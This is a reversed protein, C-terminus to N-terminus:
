NEGEVKLHTRFILNMDDPEAALRVIGDQQGGEGPTKLLSTEMKALDWHSRKFPDREKRQM